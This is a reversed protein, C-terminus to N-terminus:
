EKLNAEAEIQLTVDDSVGPIAYNMGFESRKITTTASFGATKKNNMPNPAIQNLTVDLVVPKTVGILTLDGTVKATKSGTKEVSTSVFTATPHKEVDFFDKSKLHGDFKEIGTAVKDTPITVKFTSKEPAAEDLALEGEINSFIGHPASAGFHVASWIVSTHHPDFTYTEAASASLPAAFLAAGLALSKVFNRM